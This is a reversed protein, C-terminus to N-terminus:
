SELFSVKDGHKASQLLGFISTRTFAEKNIKGDADVNPKRDKFIPSLSSFLEEPKQKVGEAQLLRFTRLDHRWDIPRKELYDFWGLLEEYPM